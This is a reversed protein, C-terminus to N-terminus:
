WYAGHGCPEKAPNFVDGIYPVRHIGHAPAENKLARGKFEGIGWPMSKIHGCVGLSVRNLRGGIRCPKRALAICENRCTSPSHALGPTATHAPDKKNVYGATGTGAFFKGEVMRGHLTKGKADMAVTLM